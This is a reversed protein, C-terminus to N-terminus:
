ETDDQDRSKGRKLFENAALRASDARDYAEVWDTLEKLTAREDEGLAALEQQIREYFQDRPFDLKRGMGRLLGAAIKLRHKARESLPRATM